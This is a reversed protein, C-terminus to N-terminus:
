AGKESALENVKEITLGSIEAIEEISLKGNKLMKIVMVISRQEAAENRMDELVKCM